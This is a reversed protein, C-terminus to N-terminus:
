AKPRTECMTFPHSEYEVSKQTLYQEPVQASVHIHAERSLIMWEHTGKM